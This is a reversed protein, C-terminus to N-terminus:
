VEVTTHKVLTRERDRRTRSWWIKLVAPAFPTRRYGKREAYHTIRADDSYSSVASSLNVLHAQYTVLKRAAHNVKVRTEVDHRSGHNHGYLGFDWEDHQLFWRQAGLYGKALEGGWAGHHWLIRVLSRSGVGLRVRLDLVGSYGGLNANLREALQRTVDVGYHRLVEDEHNGPTMLLWTYGLQQLRASVFDVTADLWDDLGRLEAPQVSARYRRLDPPLVLNATDGIAVAYKIGAERDRKALTVLEDWKSLSEDIHLDSFARILLPGWGGVEIDAVVARSLPKRSM